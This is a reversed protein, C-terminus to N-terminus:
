RAGAVVLALFILGGFVTMYKATLADANPRRVGTWAARAPALGVPLALLGILLWPRAEQAVVMAIVFLAPLFMQALYFPVYLKRGLARALTRIGGSSDEEIDRLFNASVIATILLGLPISYLVMQPTVTMAQM